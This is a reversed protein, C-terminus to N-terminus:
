KPAGTLAAEADAAKVVEGLAEISPTEVSLIISNKTLGNSKTFAYGSQKLHREFISFKWNDLAIGAKM